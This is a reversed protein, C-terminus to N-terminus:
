PTLRVPAGAPLMEELIRHMAEVISARHAADLLMQKLLHLKQGITPHM